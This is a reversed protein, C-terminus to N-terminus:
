VTRKHFDDKKILLFHEVPLLLWGSVILLTLWTHSSPPLLFLSAAALSFAASAAWSLGLRKARMGKSAPSWRLGGKKTVWARIARGWAAAIVLFTRPARWVRIGTAIFLSIGGVIVLRLTQGIGASAANAVARWVLRVMGPFFFIALLSLQGAATPRSLSVIILPFGLFGGLWGLVQQGITTCARLKSPVQDSGALSPFRLLNLMDGRAWREDRRALAAPSQPFSEFIAADDVYTPRLMFSEITDHSLARGALQEDCMLRYTRPDYMGKGTYLCQGTADNKPDRWRPAPKLPNATDGVCVQPFRWSTVSADVVHSSPAALGHGISGGSAKPSIRNWPHALVGALRQICDRGIQTDEDCVFLYRCLSVNEYFGPSAFSFAKEGDIIARHLLHIKGLKRGEGMWAGESSVFKRPRHAFHVPRGYRAGAVGNVRQVLAAIREVAASEEAGSPELHSDALDTLLVFRVGDDNVTRVNWLLTRELEVFQDESHLVVPVAVWVPEEVGSLSYDYRVASYPGMRWAQLQEVLWYCTELVLPFSLLMWLMSEGAAPIQTAIALATAFALALAGACMWGEKAQQRRNGVDPGRLVGAKVLEELESSSGLQRDVGIVVSTRSVRSRIAVADIAALCRMKSEMDLRKYCDGLREELAQNVRDHKLFVNQAEVGSADAIVNLIYQRGSADLSKEGVQRLQWYLVAGVFILPARRADAHRMGKGAASGCFIPLFQDLSAGQSASRLAERWIEDLSRSRNRWASAWTCPFAHGIFVAAAHVREAGDFEPAVDMGAKCAQEIVRLVAYARRAGAMGEM